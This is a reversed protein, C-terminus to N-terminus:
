RNVLYKLEEDSFVWASCQKIRDMVIPPVLVSSIRQAGYLIREEADKLVMVNSDAMNYIATFYGKYSKMNFYYMVFGDEDETKCIWRLSTGFELM